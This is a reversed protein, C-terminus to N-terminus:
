LVRCHSLFASESFDTDASETAWYQDEKANNQRVVIKSKFSNWAARLSPTDAIIQSIADYTKLPLGNGPKLTLEKQIDDCQKVITLYIAAEKRAHIKLKALYYIPVIILAFSAIWSFCPAKLGLITWTSKLLEILDM